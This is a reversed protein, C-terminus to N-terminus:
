EKQGTKGNVLSSIESKIDDVWLVSFVTTNVEVARCQGHNKM